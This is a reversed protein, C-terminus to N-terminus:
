VLGGAAHVITAALLVELAIGAAGLAVGILAILADELLVGLALVVVGLSPLTDLGTFPPALFAGLTGALVLAGFVSRAIRRGFLASLRPRAIRELTRIVWFLARVFRSNGDQGAVNSGRWRAPIWIEERGAILQIAGLAVIIEFVHTAGGTPLPLAPVAMLVVFMVAFSRPGFLDVLGGLTTDGGSRWDALQDSLRRPPPDPVDGASPM